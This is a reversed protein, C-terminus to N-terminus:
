FIAIGGDIIYSGLPATQANGCTVNGTHVTSADGGDVVLSPGGSGGALVRTVLDNWDEAYLVVTNLADFIVGERNTLTRPM